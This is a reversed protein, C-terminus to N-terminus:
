SLLRKEAQEAEEAGDASEHVLTDELGGDGSDIREFFDVGSDFMGLLGGFAAFDEQTDGVGSGIRRCARQGV